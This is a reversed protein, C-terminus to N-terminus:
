QIMCRNQGATFNVRLTKILLRQLRHLLSAPAIWSSPVSPAGIHNWLRYIPQRLPSGNVKKRPYQTNLHRAHKHMITRKSWALVTRAVSLGYAKSHAEMSDPMGHKQALSQLSNVISDMTANSFTLTKGVEMFAIMSAYPYDILKGATPKPIESFGKLQGTLSIYNSDGQAMVEYAALHSYAYVRSAVPPTFINFTMIETLQGTLKCYLVPDHLVQQYNNARHCSSAIALVIIAQFIKGM